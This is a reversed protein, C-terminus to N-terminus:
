HNAVIEGIEHLIEDDLRKGHFLVALLIDESISFLVIKQNSLRVMAARIPDKMEMAMAEASGMLIAAMGVFKDRQTSRRLNGLIFMGTKTMVLSDTVSDLETIKNLLDKLSQVDEM